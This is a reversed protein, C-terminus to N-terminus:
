HEKGRDMPAREDETVEGKNRKIWVDRRDESILSSRAERRRFCGGRKTAGEVQRTAKEKEFDCQCISTLGHVAPHNLKM